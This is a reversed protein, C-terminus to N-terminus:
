VPNQLCYDRVSTRLKDSVKPLLKERGEPSVQDVTRGIVRLHTALSLLDVLDKFIHQSDINYFM